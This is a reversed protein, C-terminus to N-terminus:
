AIQIITKAVAPPHTPARKALRRGTRQTRQITMAVPNTILATKKLRIQARRRVCVPSALAGEFDIRQLKKALPLPM